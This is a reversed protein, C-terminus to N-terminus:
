LAHEDDEEMKRILSRTARNWFVTRNKKRTRIEELKKAVYEVKINFIGGLSRALTQAPIKGYNIFGDAIAGYLFEVFDIVSGTWQLKTGIPPLIAAEPHTLDYAAKNIYEGLSTAAAAKSLLYDCATTFSPDAQLLSPDTSVFDHLQGRTFYAIDKDTEGSRWYQFFSNHEQFFAKLKHGQQRLYELQVETGGIPRNIELLYIDHHLLLPAYFLPKTYKFFRIEDETSPFSTQSIAAKLELLAASAVAMCKKERQVISTEEREITDLTERFQEYRERYEPLIHDTTLMAKGPGKAGIKKGLCIPQLLAKNRQVTTTSKHTGPKNVFTYHASPLFM